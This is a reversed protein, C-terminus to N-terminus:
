HEGNPALIDGYDTQGSDRVHLCSWLNLDFCNVIAGRGDVLRGSACRAM